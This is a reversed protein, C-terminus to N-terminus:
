EWVSTSDWSCVILSPLATGLSQGGTTAQLAIPGAAFCRMVVRKFSSTCRGLSSGLIVLEHMEHSGLGGVFGSLGAESRGMPTMAGSPLIIAPSRRCLSLCLMQNSSYSGLEPYGCRARHFYHSKDPPTAGWAYGSSFSGPTCGM